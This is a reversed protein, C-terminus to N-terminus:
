QLQEMRLVRIVNGSINNIKITRTNWVHSYAGRTQQMVRFYHPAINYM